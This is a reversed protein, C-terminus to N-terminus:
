GNDANPLPKKKNYNVPLCYASFLSTTTICCTGTRRRSGMRRHLHKEPPIIHFFNKKLRWFPDPQAQRDFLDAERHIRILFFRQGIRVVTLRLSFDSDGTAASFEEGVYAPIQSKCYRVQANVRSGSVKHRKM